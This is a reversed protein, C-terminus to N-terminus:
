HSLAEWSKVTGDKCVVYDLNGYEEDAVAIVGGDEECAAEAEQAEQAGRGPESTKSQESTGCGSLLLALVIAFVVAGGILYTWYKVM